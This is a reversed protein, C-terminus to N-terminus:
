INDSHASIICVKNIRVMELAGRAAEVGASTLELHWHCQLAGEPLRIPERILGQRLCTAVADSFAAYDVSGDTMASFREFGADVNPENIFHLFATVLLLTTPVM